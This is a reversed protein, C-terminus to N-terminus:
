KYTQIEFCDAEGELWEAFLVASPGPIGRRLLEDSLWAKNKSLLTLGEDIIEGDLILLIPLYVQKISINFDSNKPSDFPQKKLVNVSGNTELIGYEVERISFVDKQRLLHLLQDLDIKNKRLEEYKIKGKSIILSPTGELFPRSARFKQTILEVFYILSGWFVVAYLVYKLGIERDYIANGVLEGLVLASIFDFPTLQTIQNKGLFKTMILLAFFGILLEVSLYLFNIDM